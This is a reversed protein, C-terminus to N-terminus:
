RQDGIFVWVTRCDAPCDVSSNEEYARGEIRPFELVFIQQREISSIASRTLDSDVSYGFAGCAFVDNRRSDM